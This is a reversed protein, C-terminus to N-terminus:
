CAAATVKVTTVKLFDGAREVPCSILFSGWYGFGSIIKLIILLFICSVKERVQPRFQVKKSLSVYITQKIDGIELKVPFCYTSFYASTFRLHLFNL